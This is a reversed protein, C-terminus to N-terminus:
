GVTAHLQIMALTLYLTEQPFRTYKEDRAPRKPVEPRCLQNSIEVIEDFFENWDFALDTLITAKRCIIRQRGSQM